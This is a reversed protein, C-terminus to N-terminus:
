KADVVRYIEISKILDLDQNQRRGNYRKIEAYLDYSPKLFRSWGESDGPPDDEEGQIKLKAIAKEWSRGNVFSLLEKAIVSYAEEASNITTM